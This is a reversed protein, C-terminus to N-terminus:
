TQLHIAQQERAAAYALSARIDAETLEPFDKIIDAHTMGSALWGLVDGVTIRMGRICPKGGRKGPELKIIKRYDLIAPGDRLTSASGNAPRDAAPQTSATEGVHRDFDPFDIAKDTEELWWVIWNSEPHSHSTAFGASPRKLKGDIILGDFKPLEPHSRIWVHLETLGEDKLQVGAIGKRAVGLKELAEAYDIFTGPERKKFRGRKIESALLALLRRGKPGLERHAEM